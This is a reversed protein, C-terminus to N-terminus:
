GGAPQNNRNLNQLKAKRADSEKKDKERKELIQIRKLERWKTLERVEDDTLIWRIPEPESRFCM